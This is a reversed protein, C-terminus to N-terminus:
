REFTEIVLQQRDRSEHETDTLVLYATELDISRGFDRILRDPAGEAILRGDHLIMVQDCDRQARDMDHTALLVTSGHEVMTDIVTRLVIVADPDLGRFPEDLILLAPVHMAAAVVQIKRKMGHSYGEIQEDVAHWMGFAVILDIARDWDNRGRLRDHLRVYERGTLAGIMPLDDPAFGFRLRSEPRALPLGDIHVSGSDADIIGTIVHLCTSKGSGNPGLLGYVKGRELTFSVDSLAPRRRYRKTLGTLSLVPTTAAPSM